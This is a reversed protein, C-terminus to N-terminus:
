GLLITLQQMADAQGVLTVFQDRQDYVANLDTDVNKLVSIAAQYAPDQAVSAPAYTPTTATGFTSIFQESATLLNKMVKQREYAVTYEAATLSGQALAASLNVDLAITTFSAVVESLPKSQLENSWYALGTSDGPRHLLNIYLKAAIQDNSLGGYEQAFRPHSAFGASIDNLSAGAQAQNLWYQLGAADPARDYYAIYLALMKERVSTLQHVASGLAGPDIIIGNALGDADFEGGDTISFDVRTKGGEQTVSSALNVWTGSADKKYYGDVGLTSDAYLSFTESMGSTSLTAAFSLLGLPAKFGAPLDAPADLQSIRIIQATGADPDVKGALSDAVLTVFTDPSTGPNSVATSTERFPLSVVADQNSDKVGDGNGDGALTGAGTSSAIGPISDEVSAPM